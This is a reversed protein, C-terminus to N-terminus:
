SMSRYSRAVLAWMVPLQGISFGAPVFVLELGTADPLTTLIFLFLIAAVSLIHGLVAPQLREAVIEECSLVGSGAAVVGVVIGLYGALFYLLGLDEISRPQTGLLHGLVLVGCIASMWSTRM